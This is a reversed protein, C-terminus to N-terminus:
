ALELWMVHVLHRGTTTDAASTPQCIRRTDMTRGRTQHRGVVSPYVAVSHKYLYEIALMGADQVYKERVLRISDAAVDRRQDALVEYAVLEFADV